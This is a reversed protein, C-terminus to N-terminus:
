ALVVCVAAGSLAGLGLYLRGKKDLEEKASAASAAVTEAFLDLNRLQGELTEAELGSAFLALGQTEIACRALAEAATEGLRLGEAAPAFLESQAFCDELSMACGAMRARLRGLEWRLGDLERVRDALRRRAALGLTLSATMVMAAGLIKPCYRMFAAGTGGLLNKSSFVFAGCSYRCIELLRQLFGKPPAKETLFPWM